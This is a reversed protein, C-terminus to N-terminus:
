GVKALYILIAIKGSQEEKVEDTLVLPKDENFISGQLTTLRQGRGREFNEICWDKTMYQIKM